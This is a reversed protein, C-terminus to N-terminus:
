IILLVKFRTPSLPKKQNIKKEKKQNIKKSKVHKNKRKKGLIIM